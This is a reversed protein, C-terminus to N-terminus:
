DEVDKELCEVILVWGGTKGQHCELSGEFITYVKNIDEFLFSLNQYKTLFIHKLLLATRRRSNRTGIRLGALLNM